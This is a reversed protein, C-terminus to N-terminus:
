APGIFCNCGFLDAKDLFLRPRKNGSPPLPGAALGAEGSQGSGFPRISSGQM